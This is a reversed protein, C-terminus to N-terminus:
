PGSINTSVSVESVIGNHHVIAVQWTALISKHCYLFDVGSHGGDDQDFFSDNEEMTCNFGNAEM